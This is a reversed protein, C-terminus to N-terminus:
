PRKQPTEKNVGKAAPPEVQTNPLYLENQALVKNLLKSKSIKRKRYNPIVIECRASDKKSGAGSGRRKTLEDTKRPRFNCEPTESRKM